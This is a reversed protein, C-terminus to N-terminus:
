KKARQHPRFRVGDCCFVGHVMVRRIDTLFLIVSSMLTCVFFLFVVVFFTQKRETANAQARKAIRRSARVVAFGKKGNMTRLYVICVSAAVTANNRRQQMRISPALSRSLNVLRVLPCVFGGCKVRIIRPSGKKATITSQGILTKTAFFGSLERRFLTKRETASNEENTESGAAIM